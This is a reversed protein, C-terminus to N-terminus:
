NKCFDLIFESGTSFLFYLTVNGLPALALPALGFFRQATLYTSSFILILSVAKAGALLSEQM